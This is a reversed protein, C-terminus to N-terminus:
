VQYGIAWVGEFQRSRTGIGNELNGDKEGSMEWSVESM